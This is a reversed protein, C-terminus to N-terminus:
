LLIATGFSWYLVTHGGANFRWTFDNRFLGLLGGLGVSAESYNIGTQGQWLRAAGGGVIFQYNADELFSLGAAKFLVSQFNHEANFALIKDGGFEKIKAGRMFGFTSSNVGEGSELYFTRQPPLTGSAWGAEVRMSLSPALLSNTFLTKMKYTGVVSYRTFDFDGGLQKLSQEINLILSNPFLIGFPDIADIYKATLMISRLNGNTIPPNLRFKESPYFISFNTRNALSQETEGVFGVRFSLRDTIQADIFFDGGSALYYNHYDYKELLASFTNVIPLFTSAEPTYDTHHYGTIGFSFERKADLFQEMGLKYQVDKSAFTYGLAAELATSRTLSDINVHGGLYLGDVRNYRFDLYALPNFGGDASSFLNSFVSLAGRPKLRKDLTQTSDLLVYAQEEEKTLPQVQHQQWFLSDYVDVNATQTVLGKKFLSDPLPQNLTYDYITSAQKGSFPPFGLLPGIVIRVGFESGQTKPLWYEHQLSDIRNEFQQNIKIYLDKTFPFKFGENTELDVGVLAFSKDAIQITGKFLPEYRSKPTMRIKYVTTGNAKRSTLLKYEYHDFCEDALPMVVKNGGIDDFERQFDYIRRNFSFRVNGKAANKVNETIREQTIVQRLTDGERYYGTLYFEGMASITTDIRLLEKAYAKFVFSKLAANKLRKNKIAKRIIGYAPDEDPTVEIELGTISGEHLFIDLSVSATDLVLRLTDTKYGIFSATIGYTGKGLRILFNGDRNTTVGKATGLVRLTAGALPEQTAADRVTGSFKLLPTQAFVASTIFVIFITPLFLKM